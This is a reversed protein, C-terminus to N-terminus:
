IKKHLVNIKIVLKYIDLVKFIFCRSKTERERERERQWCRILMSLVYIKLLNSVKKEALVSKNLILEKSLEAKSPIIGGLISFHHTLITETEGREVFSWWIQFVNRELVKLNFTHALNIDVRRGGGAERGFLWTKVTVTWYHM